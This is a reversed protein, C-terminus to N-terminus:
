KKDRKKDRDAPDSAKRAETHANNGVNATNAVNSSAPSIGARAPSKLSRAYEDITEKSRRAAAVMAVISWLLAASVVPAAAVMAVKGLAPRGDISSRPLPRALLVAPIPVTSTENSRIQKAYQEYFKLLQELDAVQQGQKISRSQWANTQNGITAVIQMGKEGLRILEEDLQAIKQNLTLQQQKAHTVTTERDRQLRSSQEQRLNDTIQARLTQVQHRLLELREVIARLEINDSLMATRAATTTSDQAIIVANLDKLLKNRLVLRKTTQDQGQGIAEIAQMMAARAATTDTVFTKATGQLVALMALGDVDNSSELNKRQENWRPEIDGLAKQWTKLAEVITNLHKAIEQPHEEKLLKDLGASADEIEKHSAQFKVAAADLCIRLRGVLQEEREKLAEQDNQLQQNVAEAQAIQNASIKAPSTTTSRGTEIHRAVEALAEQAQQRDAQLAKYRDALEAVSALEVMSATEAAPQSASALEQRTLAVRDILRRGEPQSAPAITIVSMPKATTNVIQRIVEDVKKVALSANEAKADLELTGSTKDYAMQVGHSRATEEWREVMEGTAGPWVITGNAWYEQIQRRGEYLHRMLAASVLGALVFLVIALTAL